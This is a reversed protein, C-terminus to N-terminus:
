CLNHSYNGLRKALISVIQELFPSMSTKLREVLIEIIDLSSLTVKFSNQELLNNQVFEELFRKMEPLMHVLKKTEVEKVITVVSDIAAM